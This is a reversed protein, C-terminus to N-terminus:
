QMESLVCARGRIRENATYAANEVSFLTKRAQPISQRRFVETVFAVNSTTIAFGSWFLLIAALLIRIHWVADVIRELQGGAIIQQELFEDFLEKYLIRSM